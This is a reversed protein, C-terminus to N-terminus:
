TIKILQDRIIIRYESSRIRLNANRHKIDTLMNQVPGNAFLEAIIMSLNIREKSQIYTSENEERALVLM